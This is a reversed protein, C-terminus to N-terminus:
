VRIDIGIYIFVLKYPCFICVLHGKRNYFFLLYDLLSGKQTKKVFIRCIVKYNMHTSRENWVKQLNYHNYHGKRYKVFLGEKM